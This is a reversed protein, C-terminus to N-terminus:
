KGSALSGMWSRDEGMGKTGKPVRQGVNPVLEKTLAKAEQIRRITEDRGLITMTEPIGPGPASASLAWRLYHYMEKKFVKDTNVASSDGEPIVVADSGDYSNINFRHMEINWHEAPVFTLAAAATHLALMPVAPGTESQATTPIYAAGDLKTTFFTANRELFEPATTYTKADARLLPGLYETLSRGQLIPSSIHTLYHPYIINSPAIYECIKM